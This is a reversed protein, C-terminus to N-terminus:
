IGIGTGTLAAMLVIGTAVIFIVDQVIANRVYRQITASALAPDKKYRKAQSSGTLLTAACLLLSLVPALFLEYRSGWRLVEGSTSVRMPVSDGLQPLYMVVIMLPIVALFISLFIKANEKQGYQFM